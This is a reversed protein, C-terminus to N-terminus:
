SLKFTMAVASIISVAQYANEVDLIFSLLATLQHTLPPYTAISFGGYWRQDWLSFWNRRYHDAFFIHTYADYSFRYVRLLQIITSVTATALIAIILKKLPKM